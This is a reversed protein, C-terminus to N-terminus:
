FVSFRDFYDDKVKRILFNTKLNIEQKYTKLLEKLKVYSSPLAKLIFLRYM